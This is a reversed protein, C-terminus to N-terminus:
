QQDQDLIDSKAELEPESNIFDKHQYANEGIKELRTSHDIKGDKNYIVTRKRVKSSDFNKVKYTYDDIKEMRVSFDNKEKKLDM